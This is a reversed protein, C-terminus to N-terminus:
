LYEKVMALIAEEEFSNALKALRNTFPEYQSEQQRAM